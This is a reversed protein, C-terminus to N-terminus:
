KSIISRVDELEKEIILHFNYGENRFEFTHENYLTATIKNPTYSIKLEEDSPISSIGANFKVITPVEGSIIFFIYDPFEESYRSLFSALNSDVEAPNNFYSSSIILNGEKKLSDAVPIISDDSDISSAYNYITGLSLALASIIAAAIFFFQGKKKM